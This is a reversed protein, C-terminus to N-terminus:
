SQDKTVPHYAQLSSTSKRVPFIKNKKGFKFVIASYIYRSYIGFILRLKLLLNNVYNQKQRLKYASYTRQM